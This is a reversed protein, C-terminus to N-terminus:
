NQRTKIDNILELQRDYKVVAIKSNQKLQGINKILMKVAKAESSIYETAVKPDLLNDKLDKKLNRLQKKTTFLEERLKGHNKEISGYTKGAAKLDDLLTGIETTMADPYNRVYMKLEEVDEKVQMAKLTADEVDLTKFIADISDTQVQLREVEKMENAFPHESCSSLALLLVLGAIASYLHTRM